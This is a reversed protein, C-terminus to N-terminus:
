AEEPVPHSKMFLVLMVLGTIAIVVGSGLLPWGPNAGLLATALGGAALASGYFVFRWAELLVALGLALFALLWALLGPALFDLMTKDVLSGEVVLFALVGVLLMFVGGGLLMILNRREKDRRPESWRVYGLRRVVFQKRGTIAATVLVAPLIGALAGYDPLWIWVAGIFLFSVGVFLDIIGDSYTRRYASQEMSQLSNGVNM